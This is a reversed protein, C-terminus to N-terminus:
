YMGGRYKRMADFHERLLERRKAKDETEALQRMREFNEAMHEGMRDLREDSVEGGYMMGRGAGPGMMGPGMMGPGMMGRGAGPGMMGGRSVDGGQEDDGNGTGGGRRSWHSKLHERVLTRRAAPDEETAVKQMFQHREAIREAIRDLFADSLRDPNAGGMMSGYGPGMMWHRGPGLMHGRGPGMMWGHGQGMMWGYGPGMMWGPGHGMGWGYGPGMMGMHGYHHPMWGRNDDSGAWAASAGLGTLWALTFVAIRLTKM